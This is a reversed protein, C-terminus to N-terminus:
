IGSRGGGVSGVESVGEFRGEFGELDSTAAAIMSSADGANAPVVITNSKKAIEQGRATAPGLGLSIPRVHGSEFEPPSEESMPKPM